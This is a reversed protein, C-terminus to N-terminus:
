NILLQSLKFYVYSLMIDEDGNFHTIDSILKMISRYRSKNAYDVENLLLYKLFGLIICKADENYLIAEHLVQKVFVSEKVNIFEKIKTCVEQSHVTPKNITNGSNVQIHNIMSRVDNGYYEKILKLNYDSYTLNECKIINKLFNVVNDYPLKNFRLHIFESQLYEEIKCIYNCILCICLLREPQINHILKHLALQASKTMYDAEDLVVFKMGQTILTDTEVFNQIQGRVVDIGREDSANLHLVLSSDHTKNTKEQYKKIFNLITTTKGTGPPGYFLMSPITERTMLNELFNFNVTDMVINDFHIPRYKEVWPQTM